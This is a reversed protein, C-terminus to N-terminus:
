GVGAATRAAFHEEFRSAYYQEWPEERRQETYDRDAAVLVYVVESRVLEDRGLLQPLESLTALWNGYWSAWDADEMNTIRYVNGHLESVEHLVDAITKDSMTSNDPLGPAVPGIAAVREPVANAGNFRARFTGGGFL